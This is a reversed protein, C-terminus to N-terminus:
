YDMRYARFPEEGELHAVLAEAEAALMGRWLTRTGTGPHEVVQDLRTEYGRIVARWGERDMRIGDGDPVFWELKLAKRGIMALAPAEILAPRFPEMLDYVLADARDRAVHLFGFGSHLGARDIAIRVDRELLGALVNLVLNIPDTAPRDRKRRWSWDKGAVQWYAQWYVRGAEGEVGRLWNTDVNPKRLKRHVVTLKDAAAALVDSKRTYNLRRLLARQNHVRAEVLERVIPICLAPDLAHRAQELHRAAPSREPDTWWGTTEGHGNVMAVRTDTAAALNLAAPSIATRESVTVIDVQRAPLELLAEHEDRVVFSLGEADVSRGPELVYLPRVRAAWRGSRAASREEVEAAAVSSAPAPLAKVVSEETPTPDPREEELVLSRVFLHGLFRLSEDFEVIRTKDRNLELGYAGLMDAVQELAVAARMESRCLLVFDDAFRVIRVPGDEFADDIVDLYLNALLPSLPSGQPLGRGEPAHRDLWFAILASLRDDPCLAEIRDVLPGHPVNEFYREIDADVAWTFGARRHSAVRAVAQAVSRGKRYAFSSDNFEPEFVPELLRAVATQVVRDSVCPIDLPRLGGSRKPIMVRRSPGPAWTRDRLSQAIRHLSQGATRRFMGITVGDGGAAGRNGEVKKWAEWLLDFSSLQDYLAPDAVGTKNKQAVEPMTNGHVM